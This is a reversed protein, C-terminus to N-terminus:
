GDIERDQHEFSGISEADDPLLSGSADDDCPRPIRIRAIEERLSELQKRVEDLEKDIARM